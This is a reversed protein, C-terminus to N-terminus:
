PAAKPRWYRATAPNRWSLEHCPACHPHQANEDDFICTTCNQELTWAPHPEGLPFNAPALQANHRDPASAGERQSAPPTLPEPSLVTVACDYWVEDGPFLWSGVDAGIVYRAVHPLSSKPHLVWYYGEARNMAHTGATQLRRYGDAVIATLAETDNDDSNEDHLCSKGEGQIM